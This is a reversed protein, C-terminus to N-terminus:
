LKKRTDQIQKEWVYLTQSYLKSTILCASFRFCPISGRLFGAEVKLSRIIYHKVSM